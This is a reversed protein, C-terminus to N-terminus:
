ITPRRDIIQCVEVLKFLLSLLLPVRPRLFEVNRIKQIIELNKHRLRQLPAEKIFQIPTGCLFRHIHDLLANFDDKLDDDM